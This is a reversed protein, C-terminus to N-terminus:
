LSLRHETKSARSCWKSSIAMVPSLSMVRFSSMTFVSLCISMNLSAMVVASWGRMLMCSLHSDDQMSVGDSTSICKSQVGESEYLHVHM